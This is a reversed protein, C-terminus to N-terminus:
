HVATTYHVAVRRGPTRNGTPVIYFGLKVDKALSLLHPHQRQIVDSDIHRLFVVMVLWHALTLFLFLGFCTFYLGLYTVLFLPLKGTSM